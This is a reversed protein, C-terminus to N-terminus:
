RRPRWREGTEAEYLRAQLMDIWAGLMAAQDALRAVHQEYQQREAADAPVQLRRLANLQRKAAREQPPLQDYAYEATLAHDIEFPLHGTGPCAASHSYNRVNWGHRYVRGAEDLRITRLCLQCEGAPGSPPLRRLLEVIDAAAEALGKAYAWKWFRTGHAERLAKGRYTFDGLVDFTDGDPATVRWRHVGFWGRIAGLYRHGYETLSQLERQAAGSVPVSAYCLVGLQPEGACSRANCRLLLEHISDPADVADRRAWFGVTGAPKIARCLWTWRQKDACTHELLEQLKDSSLEAATVDEACGWGSLYVLAAAMDDPEVAGAAKRVRKRLWSQVSGSAVFSM